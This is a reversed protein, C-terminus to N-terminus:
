HVPSIFTLDPHIIFFAFRNTSTAGCQPSGCIDQTKPTSQATNNINNEKTSQNNYSLYINISLAKSLSLHIILDLETTPM